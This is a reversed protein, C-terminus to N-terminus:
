AHTILLYIIDNYYPILSVLYTTKKILHHEIQSCGCEKTEITEECSGDWNCNMHCSEKILGRLRCTTTSSSSIDVITSDTVTNATTSAVTPENSATTQPATTTVPVIPQSLTTQQPIHVPFGVNSSMNTPTGLFCVDNASKWSNSKKAQGNNYCETCRMPM